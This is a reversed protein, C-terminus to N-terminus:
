YDPDDFFEEEPRAPRPATRRERRSQGGPPDDLKLATEGGPGGLTVGGASISLVRWGRAEEGDRLRLM